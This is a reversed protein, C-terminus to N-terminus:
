KSGEIHQQQMIGFNRDLLNRHPPTWTLAAHKTMTHMHTTTHAHTHNHTHRQLTSCSSLHCYLLISQHESPKLRTFIHCIVSCFTNIGIERHHLTESHLSHVRVCVSYMCACWVVVSYVYLCVYICEHACLQNCLVLLVLVTGRKTCASCM